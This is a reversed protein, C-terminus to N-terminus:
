YACLLRKYLRRFSFDAPLGEDSEEKFYAELLIRLKDVVKKYRDITEDMFLRNVETDEKMITEDLEKITKTLDHLEAVNQSIDICLNFLGETM